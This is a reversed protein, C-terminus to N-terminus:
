RSVTGGHKQFEKEIINTVGNVAARMSKEIKQRPIGEITIEHELDEIIERILRRKEQEQIIAETIPSNEINSNNNEFVIGDIIRGM